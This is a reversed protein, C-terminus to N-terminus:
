RGGMAKKMMERQEPTMNKLQEELQKKVEPPMSAGGPAPGVMSGEQKRYGAPIAFVSAPVAGREAKVVEMTVPGEPTAQMMKAVFGNAGQAALAKTLGNEFAGRAAMANMLSDGDPLDKTTWLETTRGEQSTALVHQCSLGAIVETGIKKVTYTTNQNMGLAAAQAQLAALEVEAYSKSADDIAIITGPKKSQLLSKQTVPGMPSQMSVTSLVGADAVQLTVTGNTGRPGALKMSVTGSWGAAFASSSTLLIAVLGVLSRHM